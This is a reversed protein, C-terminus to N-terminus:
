GPVSLTTLWPCLPGNVLSLSPREVLSLSPREVLSLSPREVLSLSPREVLSLSPRESAALAAAPAAPLRDSFLKCCLVSLSIKKQFPFIHFIGTLCFSCLFSSMLFHPFRITM